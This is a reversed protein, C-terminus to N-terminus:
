VQHLKKRLLRAVLIEPHSLEWFLLYQKMKRGFNKWIHVVLRAWTTDFVPLGKKSLHPGFNHRVLEAVFNRLHYIKDRDRKEAM